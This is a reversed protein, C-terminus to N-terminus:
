LYRSYDDRSRDRAVSTEEGLSCLWHSQTYGGPQWEGSNQRAVSSWSLDMREWISQKGTSSVRLVFLAASFLTLEGCKHTNRNEHLDKQMFPALFLSDGHVIVSFTTAHGSFLPLPSIQVQAIILLLSDCHLPSRKRPSFSIELSIARGSCWMWCERRRPECWLIAVLARPIWILGVPVFPFRSGEQQWTFLLDWRRGLCSM